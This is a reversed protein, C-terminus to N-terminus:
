HKRFFHSKPILVILKYIVTYGWAPCLAIKEFSWLFFSGWDIKDVTFSKYFLFCFTILVLYAKVIFTNQLRRQSWVAKNTNQKEMFFPSNLRRVTGEKTPKKRFKEGTFDLKEQWTVPQSLSNRVLLSTTKIIHIQYVGWNVFHM